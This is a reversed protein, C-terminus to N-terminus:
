VGMREEMRMEARMEAAEERDSAIQECVAASVRDRWERQLRGAIMAALEPPAPVYVWPKKGADREAQTLRRYGEVSIDGLQWDADHTYEVEVQGNILAAEINPLTVLALEEFVFTFTKM